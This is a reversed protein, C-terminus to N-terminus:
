YDAVIARSAGSFIFAATSGSLSQFRVAWLSFLALQSVEAPLYPRLASCDARAACVRNCNGIFRNMGIQGCKNNHRSQKAVKDAPIM